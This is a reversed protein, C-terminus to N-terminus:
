VLQRRDEQSVGPRRSLSGRGAHRGGLRHSHVVVFDGTQAGREVDLFTKHHERLHLLEHDVDDDTVEVRPLKVPIGKYEPLEFKPATSVDLTFSYSNDAHLSQEKCASCASFTWTM